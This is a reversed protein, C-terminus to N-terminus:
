RISHPRVPTGILLAFDSGLMGTEIMATELGDICDIMRDVNVDGDPFNHIIGSYLLHQLTGGLRRHQIVDFEHEFVNVIEDSRIAESPCVAVVQEVTSRAEALKEIGHEYMRLHRPLLGLIHATLSLQLDTWQFRAPGVFEDLIFYGGPKLARSVQYMIEELREFHHFSQLAYVLDYRCPELQLQNIDGAIFDLAGAASARSEAFRTEELDIGTIHAAVGQRVLALAAAGNGCGLELAHPVPGGFRRVIWEQWSLGDVLAKRHYHYAVRPHNLWFQRVGRRAKEEVTKWHDVEVAAAAANVARLRRRLGTLVSGIRTM